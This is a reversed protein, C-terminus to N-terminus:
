VCISTVSGATASGTSPTTSIMLADDVAYVYLTPTGFVSGGTATVTVTQNTTGTPVDASVIAAWENGGTALVHNTATVGNIVVAGLTGSIAAGASIGMVIRRTTFGATPGLNVTTYTTTGATNSGANNSAAFSLVPPGGGSPAPCLLGGGIICGARASSIATLNVVAIAVMAMLFTFLKRMHGVCDRKM